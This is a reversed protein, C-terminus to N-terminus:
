LALGSINQTLRWTRNASKEILGRSKAKTRVWALRYQIETRNGNRIVGLQEPTLQLDLEVFKDIVDTRASGGNAELAKLVSIELTNSDPFRVTM